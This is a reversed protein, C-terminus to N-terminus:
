MTGEGGSTNFEDVGAGGSTGGLSFVAASEGDAPGGEGRVIEALAKRRGNPLFGVSGRTPPSSFSPTVTAPGGYELIGARSGGIDILVATSNLLLLLVVDSPDFVVPDVLTVGRFIRVFGRRGAVGYGGAV